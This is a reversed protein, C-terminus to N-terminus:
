VCGAVVAAAILCFAIISLLYYVMAKEKMPYHTAKNLECM